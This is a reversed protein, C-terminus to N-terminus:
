RHDRTAPCNGGPSDSVVDGPRMVPVGVVAPVKVNVSRTVSSPPWCAVLCNLM